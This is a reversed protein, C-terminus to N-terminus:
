FIGWYGGMGIGYLGRLILFTSYNPSFRQPNHDHFLVCLILPIKRGFGDALSGFILAGVPRM